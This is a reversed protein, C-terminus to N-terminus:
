VEESIFKFPIDLHKEAIEKGSATNFVEDDVYHYITDDIDADDMNNEYDLAEVLSEPGIDYTVTSKTHPPLYQVTLQRIKYEKGKHTVTRM